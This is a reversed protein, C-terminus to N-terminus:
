ISRLLLNRYLTENAHAMVTTDFRARAVSQGIHGLKKALFPNKGLSDLAQALALPDHSPILLGTQGEDVVEPIGGVRSAIVPVGAALAEIIAVGLGENLPIHVFIDAAALIAPINTSFGVFQVDRTLGLNQAKAALIPRLPGEGCILYRFQQRQMKLIHAATLLTNHDKREVLAGIAVVLIEHEQIGYLTRIQVRRHRTPLFQSVDIGSPILQLQSAPVGGALLAARVGTSIAVVKDVSRVYLLHTVFSKRLPYDM